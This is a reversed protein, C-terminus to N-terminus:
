HPSRPLLAFFLTTCINTFTISVTPAHASTLAQSAGLAATVHVIIYMRGLLMTLQM